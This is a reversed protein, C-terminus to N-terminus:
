ECPLHPNKNIIKEAKTMWALLDEQLPIKIKPNYESSNYIFEKKQKLSEIRNWFEDSQEDESEGSDASMMKPKETIALSHELRPQPSNEKQSATFKSLSEFTDKLHIHAATIVEESKQMIECHKHNNRRGQENFFLNYIKRAKEYKKSLSNAPWLASVGQTLSKIGSITIATVGALVGFPEKLNMYPKYIHNFAIAEYLFYGTLTLCGLGLLISGGNKFYHMFKGRVSQKTEVKKRLKLAQALAVSTYIELDEECLQKITEQSFANFDQAKIYSLNQEPNIMSGLSAEAENNALIGACFIFSFLFLKKM